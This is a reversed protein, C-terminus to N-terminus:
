GANRVLTLSPNGGASNDDDTGIERLLKAPPQYSVFRRGCHRNRCEVYRVIEHKTRNVGDIFM